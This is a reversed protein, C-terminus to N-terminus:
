QQPQVPQEPVQDGGRHRPGRDGGLEGQGKGNKKMEKKHMKDMREAQKAKFQKFKEAGLIKELEADNAKRMEERKAVEKEHVKKMEAMHEDRVKDQKEFLAQLKDRQADTLELDVALYGAKKKPSMREKKDMKMEKRPGRQQKDPGENPQQAAVSLTFVCAVALAMMGNAKMRYEIKFTLIKQKAKQTRQSV